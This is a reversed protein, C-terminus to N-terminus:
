YWIAEGLATEPRFDPMAAFKWLESGAMPAIAQRLADRRAPTTTLMLVSFKDMNTQPFMTRHLGAKAMAAFGPPKSHSIQKVGSAPNCVEMYTKNILKRQLLQLLRYRTARGSKDSPCCLRQIQARTLTYYRALAILIDWHYPTM